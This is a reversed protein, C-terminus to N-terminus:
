LLVRSGILFNHLLPIGPSTSINARYNASFGFRKSIKYDYSVGLVFGLDRNITTKNNSPQYSIPSSM